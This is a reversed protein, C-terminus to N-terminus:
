IYKYKNTSMPEPQQIVKVASIINSIVPKIDMEMESKPSAIPAFNTEQTIAFTEVEAKDGVTIPIQSGGQSTTDAKFAERLEEVSKISLGVGEHDFDDHALTTAAVIKPLASTSNNVFLPMNDNENDTTADIVEQKIQVMDFEQVVEEHAVTEPKCQVSNMLGNEDIEFYTSSSENLPMQVESSDNGMKETHVTSPSGQLPSGQTELALSPINLEELPEVKIQGELLVEFRKGLIDSLLPTEEPSDDKNPETKIRGNPLQAM